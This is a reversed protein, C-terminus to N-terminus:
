SWSIEQGDRVAKALSFTVSMICFITIVMFIKQEESLPIELLAEMTFFFAVLPASAYMIWHVLSPHLVEHSSKNDRIAKALVFCAYVLFTSGLVLLDIREQTLNFRWLSNMFAAADFLFLAWMAKGYIGHSDRILTAVQEPTVNASNTFYQADQRDRVLKALSLTSSLTFSLGILLFGIPEKSETISKNHLHVVIEPAEVVLAAYVCAVFAIAFSIVCQWFWASTGALIPLHVIRSMQWDRITKALTFTSSILYFVTLTSIVRQERSMDVRVIAWYLVALSILFSATSALAYGDTGHLLSITTQLRQDNPSM